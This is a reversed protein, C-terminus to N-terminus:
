KVAASQSGKGLTSLHRFYCGLWTPVSRLNMGQDLWVASLSASVCLCGSIWALTCGKLSRWIRVGPQMNVLSCCAADTATVAGPGYM